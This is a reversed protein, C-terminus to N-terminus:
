PSSWKCHQELQLASYIQHIEAELETQLSAIIEQLYTHHVLHRGLLQIEPGSLGSFSARPSLGLTQTPLRQQCLGSDAM